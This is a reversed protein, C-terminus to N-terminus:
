EHKPEEKLVHINQILYVVGSLLSFFTALYVILLSIRFYGWQADFYSFPWDNLLIAPIAVMQTATKLKGFINAALVENKSAAIFRISDVVLDRAIMIIVCFVPIVIQNAAYNPSILLFILFSDVLLKDAVPDLFKGLDTVENRSRALYGDIADTSAAIAFVVFAIFYVLNIGSDGLVPSVFNPILGVAFLGILMAVVLFIRSFTIKNPLNM